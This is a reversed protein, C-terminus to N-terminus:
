KRWAPMKKMFNDVFKEADEISKRRASVMLDVMGQRVQERPKLKGQADTCYKCYHIDLRGGGHDELRVMPMGCSQCIM